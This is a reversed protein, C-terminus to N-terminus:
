QAYESFGTMYKSGSESAAEVLNTGTGMAFAVASAGALLYERRNLLEKNSATRDVEDCNVSEDLALDRAM